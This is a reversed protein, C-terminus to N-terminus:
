QPISGAFLVIHAGAVEPVGVRDCGGKGGLRVCGVCWRVCEWVRKLVGEGMVGGTVVCVRGKGGKGRKCCVRGVGM